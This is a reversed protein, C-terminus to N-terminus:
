SKFYMNRFLAGTPAAQLLQALRFTPGQEIHISGTSVFQLKMLPIAKDLRQTIQNLMAALQPQHAIVFTAGQDSYNPMDTDIAFLQQSMVGSMLASELAIHRFDKWPFNYINFAGTEPQYANIIQLGGELFMILNSDTYGLFVDNSSDVTKRAKDILLRLYPLVGFISPSVVKISQVVNQPLTGPEGVITWQALFDGLQTTQDNPVQGGFNYYYYGVTDSPKIINTGPMFYDDTWLVNGGMDMIKLQLVSADMPNFDGDSVQIDVPEATNYLAVKINNVSRAM